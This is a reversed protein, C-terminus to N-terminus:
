LCEGAILGTIWAITLNYGGCDGNLDLLEGTVYLDKVKRSEMTELNVDLLSVGGLTVQSYDFSKTDVVEVTYSLLNKKIFDNKIRKMSKETCSFTGVFEIVVNELKERKARAAMRREPSPESTTWYNLYNDAKIFYLHFEKSEQNVFGSRSLVNGGRDLKIAM